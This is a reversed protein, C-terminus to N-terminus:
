GGSRTSSTRAAVAYAASSARSRMMSIPWRPTAHPELDVLVPRALV